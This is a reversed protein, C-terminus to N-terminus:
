QNEIIPTQEHNEKVKKAKGYIEIKYFNRWKKYFRITESVMYWDVHVMVSFDIAFIYFAATEIQFNLQTDYYVKSSATSIRSM